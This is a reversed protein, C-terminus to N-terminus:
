VVSKSRNWVFAPGLLDLAAYTTVLKMVSAPNMAVHARHSLRPPDKGQADVVLMAIADRPVKAKQLAAEVEAPLNQGTANGMGLLALLLTCALLAVSPAPM